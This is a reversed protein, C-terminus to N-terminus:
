VLDVLGRERKPHHERWRVGCLAIGYRGTGRYTKRVDLSKFRFVEVVMDVRGGSDVEDDGVVVVV